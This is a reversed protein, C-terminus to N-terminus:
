SRNAYRRSWWVGSLGLALLMVSAPEPVSATSNTIPVFEELQTVPGGPGDDGDNNGNFEDTSSNTGGGGNDPDPLNIVLNDLGFRTNKTGVFQLKHVSTDFFLTLNGSNGSKKQSKSLTQQDITVGDALITLGKGNKFLKWDLSFSSIGNTGFDLVIPKNGSNRLYMGTNNPQASFSNNPSTITGKTAITGKSVFIDDGYLNEMYTEVSRYDKSRYSNSNLADFDFSVLSDATASGSTVFSVFGIALWFYYKKSM